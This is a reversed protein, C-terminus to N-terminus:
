EEKRTAHPTVKQQNQLLTIMLIESMALELKERDQLRELYRQRGEPPLNRFVNVKKANKELLKAREEFSMNDLEEKAQLDLLKSKLEEDLKLEGGGKQFENLLSLTVNRTKGRWTAYAMAVEQDNDFERRSGLDQFCSQGHERDFGLLEMVEDHVANVVTDPMTGTEKIHSRLREQVETTELKVKCASFFELITNRPMKGKKKLVNPRRDELCQMYAVDITDAFEKRLPVLVACDDPNNADIKSVALRGAQVPIGLKDWVGKQIEVLKPGPRGSSPAKLLKRTEDSKNIEICTRLFDEVQSRDVASADATAM